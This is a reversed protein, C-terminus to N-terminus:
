MEVPKKETTSRRELRYSLFELGVQVFQEPRVDFLEFNNETPVQRRPFAAYDGRKSAVASVRKRSLGVGSLECRSNEFGALQHLSFLGRVQIAGSLCRRKQLIWRLTTPLAKTASSYKRGPGVGCLVVEPDPRHV